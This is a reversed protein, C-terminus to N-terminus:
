KIIIFSLFINSSFLKVLNLSSIHKILIPCEKSLKLKSFSKFLLDFLSTKSSDQALWRGHPFDGSSDYNSIFSKGQGSYTNNGTVVFVLSTGLLTPFIYAFLSCAKTM